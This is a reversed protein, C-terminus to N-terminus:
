DAIAVPESRAALVLSLSGTVRAVNHVRDGADLRSFAILENAPLGSWPGMLREHAAADTATYSSAM